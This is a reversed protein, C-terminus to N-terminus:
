FHRIVVFNLLLLFNHLPLLAFSFHAKMLFHPELEAFKLHALLTVTPAPIHHLPEVKWHETTNINHCIVVFTAETSKIKYKKNRAECVVSMSSTCCRQWWTAAHFCRRTTHHQDIILELIPNTIFKTLGRANCNNM